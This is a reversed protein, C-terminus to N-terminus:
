TMACKEVLDIVGTQRRELTYKAEMVWDVIHHTTRSDPNQGTREDVGNEPIRYM